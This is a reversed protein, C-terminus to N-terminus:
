EGVYKLRDTKSREHGNPAPPQCKRWVGIGNMSHDVTRCSGSQTSCAMRGEKGFMGESAAELRMARGSRQVIWGGLNRSRNRLWSVALDSPFICTTFLKHHVFSVFSQLKQTRERCDSTAGSRPDAKSCVRDIRCPRSDNGFRVESANSYLNRLPNKQLAKKRIGGLSQAPIASLQNVREGHIRYSIGYQQNKQAARKGRKKDSGSNLELM